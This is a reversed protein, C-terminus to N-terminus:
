DWLTLQKTEQYSFLNFTKLDEHFIAWYNNLFGM